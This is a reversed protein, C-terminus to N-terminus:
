CRYEDTPETPEPIPEFRALKGRRRSLEYTKFQEVQVVVTEEQFPKGEVAAKKVSAVLDEFEKTEDM